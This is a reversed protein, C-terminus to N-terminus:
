SATEQGGRSLWITFLGGGIVLTSGLLSWTDPVQGWLLWGWIGTLVVALYNVPAMCGGQQHPMNPIVEVSKIEKDEVSVMTYLDCHGFHAGLPAEMGGPATSPIAILTNM